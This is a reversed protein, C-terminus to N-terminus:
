INLDENNRALWKQATAYVTESTSSETHAHPTSNSISADLAERWVNFESRAFMRVHIQIFRQDLTTWGQAREVIIFGLTQQLLLQARKHGECSRTSLAARKCGTRQQGCVAM